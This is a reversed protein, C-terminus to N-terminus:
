PHRVTLGDCLKWSITLNDAGKSSPRVIAEGIGKSKMEEEAKTYGINKFNPHDIARRTRGKKGDPGKGEMKDLADMHARFDYEPDWGWARPTYSNGRSSKNFEWPYGKQGNTCYDVEPCDFDRPNGKLESTKSALEFSQFQLKIKKLRCSITMGQAIREAPTNLKKDSIDWISIQGQLNNLLSVQVGTPSGECKPEVEDMACKRAEAESPYRNYCITCLWEM